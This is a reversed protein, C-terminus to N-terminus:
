GERQYVIEIAKGENGSPMINFHSIVLEDPSKLDYEIRWGWPEMDPSMRYSGSVAFPNCSQPVEGQFLLIQGHTHFSNVWALQLETLDVNHAITEMGHMTNEGVQGHYEHIAFHGGISLKIEGEIPSEDALKGPEFWTKATGRWKGCLKAFHAHMGGEAQSAELAAWTPTTLDAM